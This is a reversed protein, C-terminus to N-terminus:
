KRGIILSLDVKPNKTDYEYYFRELRRERLPTIGRSTSAGVNVDNNNDVEMSSDALQITEDFSNSSAM